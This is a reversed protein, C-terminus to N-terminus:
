PFAMWWRYCSEETSKFFNKQIQLKTINSYVMNSFCEYSLPLFLSRLKSDGNLSFFCSLPQIPFLTLLHTVFPLHLQHLLASRSSWDSFWVPSDPFELSSSYFVLIYLKWFPVGSDASQLKIQLVTCTATLHRIIGSLPNYVASDLIGVPLFLVSDSSAELIM